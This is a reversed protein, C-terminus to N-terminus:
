APESHCALVALRVVQCVDSSLGRVDREQSSGVAATNHIKQKVVHQAAVWSEVLTRWPQPCRHLLRSLHLLPLRPHPPPRFCEPRQGEEEWWGSREDRTESM